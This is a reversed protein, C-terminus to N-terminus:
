FRKKVIELQTELMKRDTFELLCLGQDLVGVMMTGLPTAVRNIVVVTGKHNPTYDTILKYKEPLESLTQYEKMSLSTKVKSGEKTKPYALNIRNMRLYTQFTMNYHQKFYRRMKEPEYGLQKLERDKWQREPQNEIKKLLPKMWDYSSYDHPEMPRCIKCARYGNDVAKKVSGFFEVNEFKPKRASCTPRCFNGTTSVGIIFDDEFRTNREILVDYMEKDSLSIKKINETKVM